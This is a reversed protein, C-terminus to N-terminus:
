NVFNKHKKKRTYIKKSQQVIPRAIPHGHLAIEQERNLRRLVKLANVMDNLKHKM